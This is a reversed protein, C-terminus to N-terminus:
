QHGTQMRKEMLGGRDLIKEPFFVQGKGLEQAFIIIFSRGYDLIGIKGFKELEVLTEAGVHFYPLMDIAFSGCRWKDGIRGTFEQLALM